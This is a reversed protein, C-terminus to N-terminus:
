LSLSVLGDRLRYETVGYRTIKDCAECRIRDRHPRMLTRDMEWAEGGEAEQGGDEDGGGPDSIPCGPYGYLDSHDCFDDEAGTGDLEDGNPEIDPDGDIADLVAMMVEIASAITGRDFTTLLNPFTVPLASGSIPNTAM